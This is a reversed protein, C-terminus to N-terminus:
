KKSIEFMAISAAIAVNLSDINSIKISVNSKSRSLLESSIGTGENGFAIAFSEPFNTKDIFESEESLHTSIVNYDYLDIAKLLDMQFIPIMFIAGQSSSIVKQNYLYSSNKSLYIADFNFAVASRIITGLNGPDQIGELFIVRKYKKSEYVPLKVVAITTDPNKLSSLKKIVNETVRIDKNNDIENTTLLFEVLNLKRAEDINNKGEVLIIGDSLQQKKNDRLKYLKKILPNNVSTITKNEM